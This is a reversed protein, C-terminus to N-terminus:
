DQAHCKNCLSRQFPAFNTAPRDYFAKQTEAALRGQAFEAPTGNDTGPYVGNYVIFEVTMNWRTIKDWASAHARHCTLCMVNANGAPGTRMSGNSNAVRKLLAYDTTRMEFPVLSTYATNRNGGMNGSAVYANYNKAVDPSLLATRGSPHMNTSNINPHCNQCWESMGSGYAVRTDSAAEGRNYLPPSVAAPPDTVFALAGALRKPQYGKGALLRYVGVSGSAGPEPSDSYSGSALIPLGTAGITGDAFRRYNGHPDHCSICSLDSSPYTGGPAFLLTTDASYGYDLAVINHGHSEGPSSGGAQEGNIGAPNWKYNKELWCFDGGPTLQGCLPTSRPDTAVYHNYPQGIGPPALHCKLCTSSPDSGLLLPPTTHCVQCDGAGGNHFVVAGSSPGAILLSAASIFACITLKTM